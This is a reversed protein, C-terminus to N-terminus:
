KQAKSPTNNQFFIVIKAFYAPTRLSEVEVLNNQFYGVITAIIM